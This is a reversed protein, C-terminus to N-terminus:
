VRSLKHKLESGKESKKQVKSMGSRMTNRGMLNRSLELWMMQVKLILVASANQNGKM